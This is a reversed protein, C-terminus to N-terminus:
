QEKHHTVTASAGIAKNVLHTTGVRYVLDDRSVNPLEGSQRTEVIQGVGNFVGERGGRHQRGQPNGRGDPMATAASVALAIAAALLQWDTTTGHDGTQQPRERMGQLAALDPASQRLCGGDPLGAPIRRRPFPLSLGAPL